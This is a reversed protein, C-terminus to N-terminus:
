FEWNIGIFPTFQLWTEKATRSTFTDTSENEIDHDYSSINKQNYLNIIQLYLTIKDDWPYFYRNVRLDMRQYDPYRAANFSTFAHYYAYTGDDRAKRKVLFPTYPWGSHYQWSINFYWYKNLRYNVDANITHRQDWPRPQTASKLNIIGPYQLDTYTEKVESLVYSVWWTIANGTNYKLYLELGKATSKDFSVKFLDDRAEPFFEDINAFTYFADPVNSNNKIYGEARLQLGNTFYHELGLVYQRSLEAKHYDKEHYQINLQDIQQSQYYNGWGARLFTRKSISYVLNLRPSWLDDNSHTVKDYRIGTEFVLPDTIQFRASVYTGMQTGAESRKVKLSDDRIQLSDESSVYEYFINNSYKFRANQKKLDIGFKFLLTNSLQWNWDQKIGYLRFDRKDELRAKTLHYNPDDDFRDWFRNRTVKGSYLMSQTFINKTFFSKLTLWGYLNGYDTEVFDINPLIKGPEFEKEDLKYADNAVFGHFSIKHYETLTYEIKGLFDYYVPKLKYEDGMLKNLIDLYGRRLSFLWSGNSNNFTGLSFAQANILSLGLVNKSAGAMATKSKMNLIGSSRDGNEATFGGTQLNVNDIAEINITSYIGGGFDKQHFPQYIQMGDLLVMVEDAKGGRVNLNASLDNSSIGPIRQVARSIDEAWGMIKIEESNLTQQLSPEDGMLAYSGPTVIIEDLPIPQEQLEITKLDTVKNNQVEIPGLKKRSYGMYEFILTYRGSELSPIKFAGKSDTISGRKTDAIIINVGALAARSSQDIVSGKIIGSLNNMASDTVSLNASFAYNIILATALLILNKM